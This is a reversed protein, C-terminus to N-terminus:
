KDTFPNAGDVFLVIAKYHELLALETVAYIIRIRCFVSGTIEVRNMQWNYDDILELTQILKLKEDNWVIEIHLKHTKKVRDGTLGNQM